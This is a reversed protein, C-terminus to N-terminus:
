ALKAGALPRVAYMMVQMMCFGAVLWRWLALRAEKRSRDRKFADSAPMLSYGLAQPVGMWRSPRTLAASWVVSVRGSAPSVQAAVVGPIGLLSRELALSCAACHM